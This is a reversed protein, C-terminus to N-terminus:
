PTLTFSITIQKPKQKFEHTVEKRVLRAIERMRHQKPLEQFHISVSSLVGNNWKFGVYSKMGLKKELEASVAQSHKFGNKVADVADCGPLQLTVALIFIIGPIIRKM